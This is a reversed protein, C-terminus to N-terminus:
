RLPGAWSLLEREWSTCFCLRADKSLFLLHKECVALLPKFTKDFRELAEGILTKVRAIVLEEYGNNIAERLAGILKWTYGKWTSARHVISLTTQSTPTFGKFRWTDTADHFLQVRAKMLRIVPEQEFGFIGSILISPTGRTMAASTDFVVGTWYMMNEAHIFDETFSQSSPQNVTSDRDVSPSLGTGSFTIDQRKVRLRHLQRLAMDVSVEGAIRLTNDGDSEQEYVPTLGFLYLALFTRYSLKDFVSMVKARANEWLRNGFAMVQPNDFANDMVLHLWRLSFAHVASILALEVSRDCRPCGWTCTCSALDLSVVLQLVTLGSM